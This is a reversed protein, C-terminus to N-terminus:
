RLSNISWPWGIKYDTQLRNLRGLGKKSHLGNLLVSGSRIVAQTSIISEESEIGQNMSIEDPDAVFSM